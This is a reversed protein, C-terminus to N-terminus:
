KWEYVDFLKVPNQGKKKNDKDGLYVIKIKEGVKRLSMASDLVATGFILFVKNQANRIKYVNNGYLNGTEKSEYIGEISDNAKKFAFVEISVKEWSM